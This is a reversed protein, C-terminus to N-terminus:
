IKVKRVLKTPTSFYLSAGMFLSPAEKTIGAGVSLDLQLCKSLNRNVGVDIRIDSSTSQVAYVDSYLIFEKFSYEINFSAYYSRHFDAPDWAIGGAYEVSIKKTLFQDASVFLQPAWYVGSLNETAAKPITIGPSIAFSPLYGKRDNIKIKASANLEAIGSVSENGTSVSCFETTLQLQVRDISYRLTVSPYWVTLGATRPSEFGYGLDAEFVGSENFFSVNHKSFRRHHSHPRANVFICSTMFLMLLKIRM